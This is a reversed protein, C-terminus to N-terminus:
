RKNLGYWFKLFLFQNKPTEMDCVLHKREWQNLNFTPYHKQAKQLQNLCVQTRAIAVNILALFLQQGNPSFNSQQVLKKLQAIKENLIQQIQQSNKAKHVVTTIGEQIDKHVDFIDNCLQFIEGAKYLIEQEQNQLPLNICFRYLLMSVGGKIDSIQLTNSLSIHPNKQAVSNKQAEYVLLAHQKIEQAFDANEICQAYFDIALKQKNNKPTLTKYHILLNKIEEENLENKDFFDDFIGTLSALLTLNQRNNGSLGQQHLGAIAEGVLFVSGFGYYKKIKQIDEPLLSTDGLYQNLKPSLFNQIFQKQVKSFRLIQFVLRIFGFM